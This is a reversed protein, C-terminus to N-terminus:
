LNMVVIVFYLEFVDSWTPRQSHIDTFIGDEQLNANGQNGFYGDSEVIEENLLGRSYSLSKDSRWLSGCQMINQDVRLIVVLISIDRFGYTEVNYGSYCLM